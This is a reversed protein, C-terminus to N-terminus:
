SRRVGTPADTPETLKVHAPSGAPLEHRKLGAFAVKVPVPAVAVMWTDIVVTAGLAAPM